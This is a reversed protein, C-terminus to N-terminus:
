YMHRHDAAQAGVGRGGKLCTEMQLTGGVGVGGLYAVKEHLSTACIYKHTLINKANKSQRSTLNRPGRLPTWPALGGPSPTHPALLGGGLFFYVMNKRM